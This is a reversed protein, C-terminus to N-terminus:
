LSPLIFHYCWLESPLAKYGPSRRKVGASSAATVLWCAGSCRTCCCRGEGPSLETAPVERGSAVLVATEPRISLVAAIADQAQAPPPAPPPGPTNALNLSPWPPLCARGGPWGCRWCLLSRARAGGSWGTQWGAQKLFLLAGEVEGPGLLAAGALRGPLFPGGRHGGRHLRGFRHGGGSRDADPLARGAGALAAPASPTYHPHPPPLEM